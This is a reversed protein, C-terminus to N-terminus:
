LLATILVKVTYCKYHTSPIYICTNLLKLMLLCHSEGTYLHSVNYYIVGGPWLRNDLSTAARKRRGDGEGGGGQESGTSYDFTPFYAADGNHLQTATCQICGYFDSGNRSFFTGRKACATVSVQVQARIASTQNSPSPPSYSVCLWSSPSRCLLCLQWEQFFSAGDVSLTPPAGGASHMYM